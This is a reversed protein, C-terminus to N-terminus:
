ALIARASRACALDFNRPMMASGCSNCLDKRLGWNDTRNLIEDRAGLDGREVCRGLQVVADINPFPGYMSCPDTVGEDCGCKVCVTQRCYTQKCSDSCFIIPNQNRKADIVAKALDPKMLSNLEEESEDLLDAYYDLDTGPDYFQRRNCAKSCVHCTM